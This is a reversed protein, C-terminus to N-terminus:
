LFSPGDNLWPTDVPLGLVRAVEEVAQALELPLPRSKKWRTGKRWAVVDLDITARQSLGLLLLTGGGIALVEISQERESLLAGLLHMAEHLRTENLMELCYG